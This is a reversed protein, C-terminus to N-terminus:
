SLDGVQEAYWTRAPDLAREVADVVAIAPNHDAPLDAKARGYPSSPEAPVSANDRYPGAM